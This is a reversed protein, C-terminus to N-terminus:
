TAPKKHFSYRQAIRLPISDPLRLAVRRSQGCRNKLTYRLSSSSAFPTTNASAAQLKVPAFACVPPSAESPTAAPRHNLRRLREVREPLDIFVLHHAQHIGHRASLYLSRASHPMKLASWPTFYSPRSVHQAMTPCTRAPSSSKVGDYKVGQDAKFIAASPAFSYKDAPMANVLGM